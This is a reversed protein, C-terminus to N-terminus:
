AATKNKRRTEARKRQITAKREECNKQHAVFGYPHFKGGCYECRKKTLRKM